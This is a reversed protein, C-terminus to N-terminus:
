KRKHQYEEYSMKEEVCFLVRKNIRMFAIFSKGHPIRQFKEKFFIVLERASIKWHVGDIPIYELIILEGESLNGINEEYYKKIREFEHGKLNSM